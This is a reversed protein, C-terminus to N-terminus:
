ACCFELLDEWAERLEEVVSFTEEAGRVTSYLQVPDFSHEEFRDVLDLRLQM